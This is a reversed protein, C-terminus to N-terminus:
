IKKNNKKGYLRQQRKRLQKIQEDTIFEMISKNVGFYVLQQRTLKENMFYLRCFNLFQDYGLRFRKNTEYVFKDYLNHLVYAPIFLDGSRINYHRLYKDFHIKWAPIKIRDHTHALLYNYAEKSIDIAKKNLHYFLQNNIHHFPIFENMQTGFKHITLPDQSWCKYLKFITRKNVLDKGPKIKYFALFQPVDTEYEQTSEQSKPSQELAKELEETTYDSLTRKM